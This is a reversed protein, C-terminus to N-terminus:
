GFSLFQIECSKMVMKEVSAIHKKVSQTKMFHANHETDLAFRVDSKVLAGM